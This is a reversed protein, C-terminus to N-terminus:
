RAFQRPGKRSKSGHEGNFRTDCAKGHFHKGDKRLQVARAKSNKNMILLLM